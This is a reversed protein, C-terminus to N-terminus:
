DFSGLRPIVSCAGCRRIRVFALLETRTKLGDLYECACGMARNREALFEFCGQGDGTEHSCKSSKVWESHLPGLIKLKPDKSRGCAGSSPPPPNTTPLSSRRSPRFWSSSAPSPPAASPRALSTASVLNGILQVLQGFHPTFLFPLHPHRTLWDHNRKHTCSKELIVHIQQEDSVVALMGGMLAKFDARKKTHTAKSQIASTALNLAAFLNITGPRKFTNKPWRVIKGSSTCGYGTKRKLAQISPKEDVSLVLTNQPPSLDLGIVDAAM